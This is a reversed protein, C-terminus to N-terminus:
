TQTWHSEQLIQTKLDIKFIVISQRIGRWVFIGRSTGLGLMCAIQYLPVQVVRGVRLDQIVAAHYGLKSMRAVCLVFFTGRSPVVTAVVFGTNRDVLILTKPLVGWPSVSM